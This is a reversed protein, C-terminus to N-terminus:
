DNKYVMSMVQNNSPFDLKCSEDWIKDINKREIEYLQQYEKESILSSDLLANKLRLIPDRKLWGELVEKKRNM